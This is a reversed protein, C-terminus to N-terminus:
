PSHFNGLESDEMLPSCKLDGREGGKWWIIYEKKRSATIFTFQSSNRPFQQFAFIKIFVDLIKIFIDLSNFCHRPLLFLSIILGYSLFPVSSLQDKLSVSSKATYTIISIVFLFSLYSPLTSLPLSFKFFFISLSFNHCFFMDHNSTLSIKRNMNKM